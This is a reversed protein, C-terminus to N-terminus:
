SLFKNTLVGTAMWRLKICHVTGKQLLAIEACVMVAELIVDDCHGVVALSM